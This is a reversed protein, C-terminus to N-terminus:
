AAVANQEDAIIRLIEVLSRPLENRVDKKNLGHIILHLREGKIQVEWTKDPGYHGPVTIANYARIEEPKLFDENQPSGNFLVDKRTLSPLESRLYGLANTAPTNPNERQTAAITSTSVAKAIAALADATISIPTDTTVAKTQAM